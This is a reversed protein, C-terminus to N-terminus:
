TCSIFQVVFKEITSRNKRAMYYSNVQGTHNGTTRAHNCRQPQRPVHAVGSEDGIQARCHRIEDADGRVLRARGHDVVHVMGVASVGRGFHQARQEVPHHQDRRAVQNRLVGRHHGALAYQPAHMFLTDLHHQMRLGAPAVAELFALKFIRVDVGTLTLHYVFHCKESVRCRARRVDFEDRRQARCTDVHVHDAVAERRAAHHRGRSFPM